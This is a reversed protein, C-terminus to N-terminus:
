AEDWGLVDVAARPVREKRFISANYLGMGRLVHKM